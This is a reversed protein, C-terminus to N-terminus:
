HIKSTLDFFHSEDDIDDKSDSVESVITADFLLYSNEIILNGM